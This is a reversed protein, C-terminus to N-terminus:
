KLFLYINMIIIILNQIGNIIKETKSVPYWMTGYGVTSQSLISWYFCDFWSYLGGDEFFKESIKMDLKNQNNKLYINKYEQYNSFIGYEKDKTIVVDIYNNIKYIIAFMFIIIFQIIIYNKILTYDKTIAYKILPLIILISLLHITNVYLIAMSNIINNSSYGVTSHTIFSFLLFESFKKYKTYQADESLILKYKKLNKDYIYYSNDFMDKSSYWLWSQKVKKKNKYYYTNISYYIISFILIKVIIIIIINIIM